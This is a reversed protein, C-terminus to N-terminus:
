GSFGFKQPDLLNISKIKGSKINLPPDLLKPNKVESKTSKPINAGNVWMIKSNLVMSGSINHMIKIFNIRYLLKKPNEKNQKM